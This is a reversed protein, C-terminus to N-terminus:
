LTEINRNSVRSARISAITEEATEKSQYAGFLENLSPQQVIGIEKLSQSLKSILDLKDNQSLNELFSYYDDAISIVQPANM